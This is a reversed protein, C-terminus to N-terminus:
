GAGVKSDSDPDNPEDQADLVNREAHRVLQRLLESAFVGCQFRIKDKILQLLVNEGAPGVATLGRLDVILERGRLDARAGEYAVRLEDAWPAVLTGEVIMRRQHLGDVVSIKLM